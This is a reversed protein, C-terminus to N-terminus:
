KKLNADRIAGLDADSFGEKKLVELLFATKGAGYREMDTPFQHALQKKLQGYATVASPHHRLHDRIALHNALAASGQVCAYLNHTPLHAPSYFAEREPIGLDGRHVYGLTALKEIAAPIQARSPLVVDIDVIPKAALGPVSTSGVHEVASAINRLVEFIPARLAAFTLPWTPDYDVVLIRRQNPM